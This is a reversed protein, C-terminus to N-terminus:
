EIKHVEGHNRLVYNVKGCGQVPVPFLGGLVNKKFHRRTREQFPVDTTTTKQQNSWAPPFKGVLKKEEDHEGDDRLVKWHFVFRGEQM